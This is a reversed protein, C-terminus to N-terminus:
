LGKRSVHSLEARPARTSPVEEIGARAGSRRDVVLNLRIAPIADLSFEEIFQRHIIQSSLVGALAMNDIEGLTQVTEAKNLLRAVRGADFLGASEIARPSLMELALERCGEGLLGTAIPARYPQKRRRCVRGPLVPGLARKLIHKENLGLIKWRSPVKAMFEIVRYDLFPLRIEVSNAMAMRDGQSSLLYNSLFIKTELYQAKAVADMRDYAEPLSAQIEAAVDSGATAARLEESFFARIRSTNQWRLRHSFLPDSGGDLGGAFFSKLFRKTRQDRFVYGYLRGTLAARAESDPQRAWFQRVKAEKFINYGGFVEDAGEGTLVVKLGAERVAKSLMLLPVPATRLLPKEGHWLTNAFAAGIKQASAHVERHHTGLFAAMMEQHSGEDFVEDEFRIGFTNLDANFRRATIAAVGSSDL